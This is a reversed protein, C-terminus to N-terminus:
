RGGADARRHVPELARQAPSARASAARGLLDPEALLDARQDAEDAAHDSISPVKAAPQQVRAAEARECACGSGAAPAGRRRAPQRGEHDGRRQRREGEIRQHLDRRATNKAGNASVPVSGNASPAKGSCIVSWSATHAIPAPTIPKASSTRALGTSCRRECRQSAAAPPPLPWRRCPSDPAPRHDVGSNLVSKRKQTSARFGSSARWKPEEEDVQREEEDEAQQRQPAEAGAQRHRPSPSPAASTKPASAM